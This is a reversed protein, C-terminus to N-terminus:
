PALRQVVWGEPTRTYRFRDHLRNDRGQWFEFQEPVLRYGGWFDPRPVDQGAFRQEVERVRADLAERSAVPASQHSAWAGVRHGRDRSLFYADSEEASLKEVAGDIRIQRHLPQWAFLLAAHPNGEMEHAKRSTYNTFFRLGGASLGKFLVMRLSPRGDDAVTALAMGEAQPVAAQARAFWAEFSKWPDSDLALEADVIM